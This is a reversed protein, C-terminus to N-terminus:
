SLHWRKIFGNQLANVGGWELEWLTKSLSWIKINGEKGKIQIIGACWWERWEAFMWQTGLLVPIVSRPLIFPGRDTWRYLYRPWSHPAHWHGRWTQTARRHIFHPSFRDWSLAKNERFFTCMLCIREARQGLNSSRAASHPRLLRRRGPRRLAWHHRSELFGRPKPLIIPFGRANGFVTLLEASLSPHACHWPTCLLPLPHQPVSIKLPKGQPLSAKEAEGPTAVAAGRSNDM